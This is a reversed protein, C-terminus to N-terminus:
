EDNQCYASVWEFTYVYGDPNAIPMLYWDFHDVIAKVDPDKDYNTVLQFVIVFM